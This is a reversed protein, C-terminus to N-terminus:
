QIRYPNDSPITTERILEWIEDNTAAIIPGMSKINFKEKDRAMYVCGGSEKTILDLPSHDWPTVRGHFIFQIENNALMTTEIGASGIFLRETFTQLNNLISKRYYEPIGKTGGSGVIKNSKPLDINLKSIKKSDINIKNAGYGKFAFFLERKLPHYIFTAIPCCYSVLSIMSCFNDNCNIYNKTGDIPDIVWLLPENLLDFYQNKNDYSSEEGIFKSVELFGILKNAIFRESKKDAISVFDDATSKVDIDHPSLNNFYFLVIKDNVEVLIDMIYQLINNRNYKNSIDVKLM